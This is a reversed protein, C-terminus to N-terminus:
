EIGSGIEAVEGTNQTKQTKQSPKAGSKPDFGFFKMSTQMMYGISVAFIATGIGANGGLLWGTLLVTGEGITRIVWFPRNSVRTLGVMLGDRPGAGLEASIYLGAAIAVVLLGLALCLLQQAFGDLKPLLPMVLDAGPGISLGNLVTGVGVRQKLPIWLLLVAVSTLIAAEGFTIGLRSQLGQSLVDWPPVGIHAHILLALGWGYLYLGLCLRLLRKALSRKPV